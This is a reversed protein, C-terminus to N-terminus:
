YVKYGRKVQALSVQFEKFICLYSFSCCRPVNRFLFFLFFFFVWGKYGWVRKYMIACIDGVFAVM